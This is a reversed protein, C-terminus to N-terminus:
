RRTRRDAAGGDLRGHDPDLRKELETAIASSLGRALTSTSAHGGLYEDPVEAAVDGRLDMVAIVLEDATFREVLGRVIPGSCPPRAPAPTVSSWCTSIPSAWSWCPRSWPTRAFGSVAGRGARGTRGAAREADFETPLLRIPAAAPGQWSAASREALDELAAGLDEDAVDDLVPLAVQAFM